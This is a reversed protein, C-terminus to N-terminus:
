GYFPPLLSGSNYICRLVIMLWKDPRFKQLCPLLSTGALLFNEGLGLLRYGVSKLHGEVNDRNMDFWKRWRIMTAECPFDESDADDASIVNDVVGSITEELYHKHPVLSAPLMRHIKKCQPNSCKHRPISIWEYSGGEHRILRKCHDRYIM